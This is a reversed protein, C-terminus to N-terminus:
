LGIIQKLDTYKSKYKLAKRAYYNDNNGGTQDFNSRNIRDNIFNVIKGAMRDGKYEEEVGNTTIKITPYSSIRENNIFPRDFKSTSQENLEISGIEVNPTNIKKKSKVFKIWEGPNKKEGIFGRCPPCGNLHFLTVKVSSM